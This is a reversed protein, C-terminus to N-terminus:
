EPPPPEALQRPESQEWNVLEAAHEQLHRIARPVASLRQPEVLLAEHLLRVAENNFAHEAVPLTYRTPDIQAWYCEDLRHRRKTQPQFQPSMNLPRYPQGFDLGTEESLAVRFARCSLGAFRQPDYRFVYAYPSRITV